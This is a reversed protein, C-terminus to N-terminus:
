SGSRTMLRGGFHFGTVAGSGDRVFFAKEGKYPGDTCVCVDPKGAVMQFPIPPPAEPMEAGEELLGELAEPKIAVEVVFGGGEARITGTAAITDYGGAYEALQADTPSEAEPEVEVVGLYAEFAWRQLRENFISGNPGCNTLCTLAFGREPAMHFISHQGLTDGGHEVFRVGERDTIHWTIGYMEGLPNTSTPEQMLKLLEQSLVRTGDGATGDGLHFRAWSIQDAATTCEGGAPNGNRPLAWPRVVTISGDERDQHGAAFRRTMIENPFFFSHEHGLPELILEKVAQEFTQGTIVEIVRGALCLSANNYTVMAGLPTEQDLDAMMEVYKTLADDGDGTNTLLDGQWGATHNLLHQITVERAVDEDQLKLEPLHARVKDDLRLKGQEVLRMIATGTYTKGTSGIQFITSADVPLPNEVSTVGHFVYQEEGDILVGVALGPVKLEEANETVWAQLAAADPTTRDKTRSPM